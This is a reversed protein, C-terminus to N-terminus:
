VRLIDEKLFDKLYEESNKLPFIKSLKSIDTEYIQTESNKQFDIEKKIYKGIDNLEIKGKGGVNFIEKSVDKKLLSLIIEALEKTTIMQFASSGSVFLRSNKLIDYIPGKKLNTGLMMPCRLIIYDGALNKIICESLFKHFGYPALNSPNISETESTTKESSHNEYVDVSSIYIYKKCPFDLLTKYVSVTSAEFDGLRNENSWIKNSNGNANIVIDFEKGKYDNYNDRDIQTLEFNSTLYKVLDSGVMGNSGIIALTKLNM